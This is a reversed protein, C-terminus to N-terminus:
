FGNSKLEIKIGPDPDATALNLRVFTWPGWYGIWLTTLTYRLFRAPLAIMLPDTPFIAKLGGWLAVTVGIGVLYRAARQWLPGDVRFRVRSSELLLGIGLGFLSAVATVVGEVGELEADAIFGSWSVSMDPEGILLRIVVYILLFAFPLLFAIWFRFGLIRRSFDDHWYHMWVFYGALSLVAILLGAVVDHVFHVGLYIRSLGMAIIMFLAALWVWGKRFWGALFLYFAAAAETHGSPIGYSSETSLGLSPELWYPRPGRFSHKGLYNLANAFLFTYGLHKGLKKDLCWYILPIIALYFEELGLLSIFQFFGKLQPFTTQLWRTAELGFSIITDM